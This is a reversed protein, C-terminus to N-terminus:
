SPCRAAVILPLFQPSSAAIPLVILLLALVRGGAGM